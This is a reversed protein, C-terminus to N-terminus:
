RPSTRQMHRIFNVLDWAEKATVQAGYSPMISGGNRIYSYIFGDARGRTNSGLLDPPPIFKAAVPGDGKMSQGHCPVCTRTFKRQGRAVSSDDSAVPNTLTAAYFNTLELGSLPQGAAGMPARELGQVPVSSSDPARLFGKQPMLAVSSRMDRIPFYAWQTASRISDQCGRQVTSATLMTLVAFVVVGLATKLM